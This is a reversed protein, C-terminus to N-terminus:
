GWVLDSCYCESMVCGGSHELVPFYSTAFYEPSGETWINCDGFHCFLELIKYLKPEVRSLVCWAAMFQLRKWELVMGVQIVILCLLCKITSHTMSYDHMSEKLRLKEMMIINSWESHFSLHFIFPQVQPGTMILYKQRLCPKGLFDSM